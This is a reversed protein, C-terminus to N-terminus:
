AAQASLTAPMVEFRWSNGVKYVKYKGFLLMGEALDMRMLSRYSLKEREILEKSILIENNM